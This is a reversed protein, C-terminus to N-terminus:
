YAGWRTYWFQWALAAVCILITFLNRSFFHLILAVLMAIASVLAALLYPRAIEIITSKPILPTYLEYETQFFAGIDGAISTLLMVLLIRAAIVYNRNQIAKM